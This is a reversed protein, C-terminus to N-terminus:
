NPAAWILLFYESKSNYDHHVILQLFLFQKSGEPRGFGVGVVRGARRTRRVVEREIVVRLWSLLVGKHLRLRKAM